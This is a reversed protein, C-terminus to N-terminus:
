IKLKLINEKDVTASKFLGREWGLRANDSADQIGLNYALKFLKEGQEQIYEPDYDSYLNKQVLLKIIEETM